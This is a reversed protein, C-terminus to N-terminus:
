DALLVLNNEAAAEVAGALVEDFMAAFLARQARDAGCAGCVEGFETMM